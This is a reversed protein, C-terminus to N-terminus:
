REHVHVPMNQKYLLPDEMHTIPGYNVMMVPDVARPLPGSIDINKTGAVPAWEKTPAQPDTLGPYLFNTMIRSVSTHNLYMRLYSPRAHAFIMLFFMELAILIVVLLTILAPIAFYWHYRIVRHYILIDVNRTQGNVPSSSSSGSSGNRKQVANPSSIANSLWGRTGLVSNAALDTWILNIIKSTTEPQRSYRQWQAYMALNSAASYDTTHDLNPNLQDLSYAAGLMTTHFRSGPVNDSSTLVPGFKSNFWGPLWLSAKQIVSMDSRGKYAPSVLGWLPYVDQLESQTNEVGWLPMDGDSSYQKDAVNAVQLNKLGATGNYVFDVTKIVARSGSACSYLPISWQSGPEFILSSSGDAPRAAGYVQGCVVGVNTINALDAGGAGQCLV